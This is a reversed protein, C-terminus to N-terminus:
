DPCSAPSVPPDSSSLTGCALNEAERGHAGVGALVPRVITTRFQSINLM